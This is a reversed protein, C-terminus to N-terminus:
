TIHSPAVDPKGSAWVATRARSPPSFPTHVPTESRKTLDLTELLGNYCVLGAYPIHYARARLREAANLRNPIDWRFTM